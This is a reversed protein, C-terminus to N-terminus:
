SEKQKFSYGDPKGLQKGNEITYILKSRTVIPSAKDLMEKFKATLPFDARNRAAESQLDRVRGAALKALEDSM